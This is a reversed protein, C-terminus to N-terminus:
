GGDIRGTRAPRQQEGPIRTVVCRSSDQVRLEVFMRREDHLRGSGCIDAAGDGERAFALQEDGHLAAAM